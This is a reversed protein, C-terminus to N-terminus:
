RMLLLKSTMVREGVQLRCFYVGSAIGTANWIESHRGASVEEDVLTAVEEGLLNFVKL